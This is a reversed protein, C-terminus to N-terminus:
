RGQKRRQREIKNKHRRQRPTSTVKTYRPDHWAGRVKKHHKKLFDVREAKNMPELLAQTTTALPVIGLAEREIESMKEYQEQTYMDGTVTSAM